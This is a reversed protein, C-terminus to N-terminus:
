RYNLAMEAAPMQDNLYQLTSTSSIHFITNQCERKMNKEWQTFHPSDMLMVRRSSSYKLEMQKTPIINNARLLFFVLVFCTARLGEPM